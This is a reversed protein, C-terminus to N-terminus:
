KIAYRTAIWVKLEPYTSQLMTTWLKAEDISSFLMYCTALADALTCEKALVTASAISQPSIIQPEDKLPHMIHFYCKEDTQISVNWNQFYDGSTALAEDNLSVYAMAQDSDFQRIGVNWFRGSPHKGHTKIEGGWEIYFNSIGAHMFSQYILDVAYGKAIGGLDIKTLEHDKWFSNEDFHINKWGIAPKLAELEQRSPAENIKLHRKWLQLLPAITPDFLGQTLQYIEDTKKLLNYLKKSIPHIVGAKLENLISLESQPNWDNYICNVESFTEEVIKGAISLSSDIVFIKYPITMAVGEITALTTSEKQCSGLGISLILLLIVKKPM